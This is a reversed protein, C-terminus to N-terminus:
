GRTPSTKLPTVADRQVSHNQTDTGLANYTPRTRLNEEKIVTFEILIKINRSWFKDVKGRGLTHRAFYVM